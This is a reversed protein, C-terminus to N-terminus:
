VKRWSVDGHEMDRQAYYGDENMANNLHDDCSSNLLEQLSEAYYSIINKQMITALTDRNQQCDDKLMALVACTYDNDISLDNGNVCETLDRDTYELYLRTLENKEFDPLMDLSLEYQDQVLKGYHAVLEDAFNFLRKEHNLSAVGAFEGNFDFPDDNWSSQNKTISQALSINNM